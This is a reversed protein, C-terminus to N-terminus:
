KEEMVALRHSSMMTNISGIPEPELPITWDAQHKVLRGQQDGDLSSEESPRRPVFWRANWTLLLLPLIRRNPPPLRGTGPGM